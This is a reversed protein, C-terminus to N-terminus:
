HATERKFQKKEAWPFPKGPAQPTPFGLLTGVTPAINIQEWQEDDVTGPTIDPGVAVCMIHRCGECTDGHDVFGNEVSDLHRGHDNTIILTTKGRLVSDGQMKKWLDVILSDAKRIARLYRLWNGQHAADDTEPFNIISIRPHATLLTKRANDAAASDKYAVSADVRSVAAAYKQGYDPSDSNALIALKKKKLIVYEDEPPRNFYRRYYEFVTPNHPPESGDNAIHQWVGSLISSHGPTTTTVGNNYFATYIIGQPRLWNWIRPIYRHAPDGITESYRAGDIVTIVIYRDAPQQAQLFSFAFAFALVYFKRATTM